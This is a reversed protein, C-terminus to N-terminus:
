NEEVPEVGFIFEQGQKFPAVMEFNEFAVGGPIPARSKWYVYRGNVKVQLAPDPDECRWYQRAVKGTYRWHARTGPAYTAELPNAENPEVTAIAHGQETRQLRALDFTAHPTFGDGTYGSWLEEARVIRDELRLKRLRAYNGMTATLICRDLPKSDDHTFVVIAGEDKRDARFTLRLYVHAGNDFPEVEVYTVLREVGDKNVIEGHEHRAWMRKGQADDLKSHELESLGRDKGGAAIPEVAIFNIVHDNENRLYPAYVRLLGRPGRLPHLGVRIGDTHGWLPPSPQTTSPRLWDHARAFCAFTLLVLVIGRPSM